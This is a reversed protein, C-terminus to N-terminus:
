KKRNRPQPRPGKIQAAGSQKLYAAYRETERRYAEGGLSEAAASPNDFLACQFLRRAEEHDAPILSFGREENSATRLIRHGRMVGQALALAAHRSVARDPLREVVERLTKIVGSRSPAAGFALARGVDRTFFNQAVVEEDWSRPHAIRLPLPNTAITTEPTKLVGQLMYAGPEAFYWGDLGSGVFFSASLTQQSELVRPTPLFCRQVFPRWFRTRGDMRAIVLAFNGGDELVAEDIIQPHQSTNTLTAVLTVPELFEFVGQPRHLAVDLKWPRPAKGDDPEFLPDGGYFPADGMEVLNDPAHRLFKLESDHFRYEFKGWFDSVHEPYNMFTPYSTIDNWFPWQLQINYTLEAHHLNFCHGTEHVLDYFRMRALHEPRQPYNSPVYDDINQNFVACGQRQNADSLDFMSGLRTAREHKGAFLVWIAWDPADSYTSWYRHM